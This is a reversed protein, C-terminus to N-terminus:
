NHYVLAQSNIRLGGQLATNKNPIAANRLRNIKPLYKASLSEVQQECEPCIRSITPRGCIKCNLIKVEMTVLLRNLKDRFPFQKAMFVM